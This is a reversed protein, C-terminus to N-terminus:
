RTVNINCIILDNSANQKRSEQSAIWAHIRGVRELASCIYQMLAMHAALRRMYGQSLIFKRQRRICEVASLWVRAPLCALAQPHEIYFRKINTQQLSFGGNFARQAFIQRRCVEALSITNCNENYVLSHPHSRSSTDAAILFIFGDSHMPRTSNFFSFRHSPFSFHLM